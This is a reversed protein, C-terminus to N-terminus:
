YTFANIVADIQEQNQCTGKITVSGDAEQLIELNNSGRLAPLTLGPKVIITVMALPSKRHAAGARSGSSVVRLINDSPPPSGNMGARQLDPLSSSHVLTPRVSGTPITASKTTAQANLVLLTEHSAGESGEADTVERHELLHLPTENAKGRATRRQTDSHILGWSTKGKSSRTPATMVRKMNLSENSEPRKQVLGKWLNVTNKLSDVISGDSTSTTENMMQQRRRRRELREARHLRAISRKEAYRNAVLAYQSTIMTLPFAVLFLSTIMLASTLIRGILTVPVVDGYGITTLTVITIWFCDPISQFPSVRGDHYYWLRANEDFYEGTQEAYFLLVSFLIVLLPLLIFLLWLGDISQSFARGMMRLKGSKPFLRFLRLLRALDLIRVWAGGEIEYTTEYLTRRGHIARGIDIYFPLITLVDIFRNFRFMRSRFSPSPACIIRLLLELTFIILCSAEYVLRTRAPDVLIYDVTGLCMTVLSVLLAGLFFRSAWKNNLLILELRQRSTLTATDWGPSPPVHMSLTHDRSASSDVTDAMDFDAGNDTDAGGFVDDEIDDISVDVGAHLSEDSDINTPRDNDALKWQVSGYLNQRDGHGQLRLGRNVIGRPASPRTAM